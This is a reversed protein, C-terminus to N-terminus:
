MQGLCKNKPAEFDSTKALLVRKTLRERRLETTMGLMKNYTKNHFDM